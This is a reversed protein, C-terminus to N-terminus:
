SCQLIIKGIHSNSEMLNHAKQADKLHLVSEIVPTFSGNEILPWIENRLKNAIEAKEQKSKNRITSGIITLNKMLLPAFNVETKSSEIFSLCILKGKYSLAKLNKQFYSGGIIDIIVDVGKGNTFKLTEEVFDQNKYNIVYDAGMDRLIAAKKDSGTVAIFNIGFLKALKIATTGIGGSAGHMLITQGRHINACMFMNYYTTFLAEPLAAAQILDINSPCPLAQGEYVSAFEAYGGGELLACVKDGENFKTVESGTKIVIGSVELGLVPSAGAPAPYKGYKQFIDARNVGAAYIKILLEDNKIDPMSFPRLELDLVEGKKIVDIAKM